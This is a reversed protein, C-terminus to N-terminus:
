RGRRSNVNHDLRGHSGTVSTECYGVLLRLHKRLHIGFTVERLDINFNKSKMATPLRIMGRFWKDADGYM